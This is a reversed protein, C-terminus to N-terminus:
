RIRDLHALVRQTYRSPRLGRNLAGATGCNWCLALQAPTPNAVGRARLQRRIVELYARAIAEQVGPSRWMPRPHTPEGRSALLRNADAWAGEHMQYAGLAAGSDGVAGPDGNSEALRIAKLLKGDDASLKVPLALLLAAVINITLNM